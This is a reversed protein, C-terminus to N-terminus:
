CHQKKLQDQMLTITELNLGIKLQITKMNPRSANAYEYQRILRTPVYKTHTKHDAVKM